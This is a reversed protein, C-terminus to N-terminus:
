VFSLRSYPTNTLETVMRVQLERAASATSPPASQLARRARSLMKDDFSSGATYSNLTRRTGNQRPNFRYPDRRRRLRPIRCKWRGASAPLPGNMRDEAATNSCNLSPRECPRPPRSVSQKAARARLDRNKEQGGGPRQPQFPALRRLQHVRQPQQFEAGPAVVQFRGHQHDIGLMGVGVGKLSMKHSFGHGAEPEDQM